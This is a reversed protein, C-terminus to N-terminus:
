FRVGKGGPGKNKAKKAEKEAEKEDFRRHLETVAKFRDHPTLRKDVYIRQREGAVKWLGDTANPNEMPVYGVNDLRHPITRRNKRESLWHSFDSGGSTATRMENLTIAGPNGLKDLIDALEGEEPSRNVNVMAHWAETKPPPAKADFKSIDLKALYAAVHAFGNEHEYWHWLRTWYEPTFDEKTLESWCVFLRRDDPPLYLGDRYNSTIVFGVVNVITYERLNKEDICLTDPPAATYHKIHDYFAYRNVDGLDRAESVRLVVKKLFGNFRGLLQQPSVEGFNWHGVAVKLPELTSDKGIGQAGGLLLSHNIKEHPRQVRHAFWTITHEAESPYIKHVHDLWPKAKKPNGGTLQPAPRYLNCCRMGKRAIWGGEAILRDEIIQALGPSWTLMQVARERAIKRSAGVTKVEGTKKIIVPKGDQIVPIRPLASDVSSAPWLERAPLFIFQGSPRHHWFDNFTEGVM